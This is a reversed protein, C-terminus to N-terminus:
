KYHLMDLLKKDQVYIRVYNLVYQILVCYNHIEIMWM